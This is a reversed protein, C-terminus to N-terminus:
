RDGSQQGPQHKCENAKGHDDGNELREGSPASSYRAGPADDYGACPDCSGDRLRGRDAIRGRDQDAVARDFVSPEVICTRDMACIQDRTGSGRDGVGSAFAATSGALVIGLVLTFVIRQTKM